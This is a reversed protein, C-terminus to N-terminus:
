ARAPSRAGVMGLQSITAALAESSVPKSLAADFACQGAAIREADRPNTTLGVIPVRQGQPLRRMTAAAEFGDFNSMQCDMLVVDFTGNRMLAVGQMGNEADTVRCGLRKLLRTTVRRTAPSVEVLLVHALMAPRDGSSEPDHGSAALPLDLELWVVTGRGEQSFAGLKGGMRQVLQRCLALGLGAGGHERTSSGDVQTFSEFIRDMSADAIGIGTDQVAVTVHARENLAPTAGISVEISGADTFKIANDLLSNLVQRLRVADGLFVDLAGAPYHTRLALGKAEARTAIARVSDALVERLNFPKQDITLREQELRTYDLLDNILTLLSEASRLAVEGQERQDPALNSDLLLTLMGIVGNMPTRLEHTINALFENKAQDAAEAADRSEQLASNLQQLESRSREHHDQQQALRHAMAAIAGALEGLEDSRTRPLAADFDGRGIREAASRMQLIPRTLGRSLVSGVLLAIALTVVGAALLNRRTIRVAQEEARLGLDALLALSGFRRVVLADAPAPGEHLLLGVECRAAWAAILQPDLPELVVLTRPSAEVMPIVLASSAAHPSGTLTSRWPPADLLPPESSSALLTGDADFLLAQAASQARALDQLAPVIGTRHLNLLRRRLPQTEVLASYVASRGDLHQELLSSSLQVAVKARQRATSGLVSALTQDQLFMAIGLSCATIGALALLM